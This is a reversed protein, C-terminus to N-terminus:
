RARGEISEALERWYSADVGAKEAEMCLGQMAWAARLAMGRLRISKLEEALLRSRLERREDRPLVTDFRPIANVKSGEKRSVAEVM